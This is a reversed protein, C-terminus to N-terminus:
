ADEWHKLKARLRRGLRGTAVCARAARLSVDDYPEGEIWAEARARGDDGSPWVVVAWRGFFVVSEPLEDTIGTAESFALVAGRSGKM